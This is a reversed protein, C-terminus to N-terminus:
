ASRADIELVGTRCVDLQSRPPVGPSVTSNAGLKIESKGGTVNIGVIIDRLYTLHAGSSKATTNMEFDDSNVSDAEADIGHSNPARRLYQDSGAPGIESVRGLPVMTHSLDLAGAASQRIVMTSAEYILQFSGDM